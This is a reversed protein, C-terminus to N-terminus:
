KQGPGAKATVNEEEEEEDEPLIIDLSDYIDEWSEMAERYSDIQVSAYEKIMKKLNSQLTAKNSNMNEMFEKTTGSYMNKSDELEKKANIMKNSFLDHKKKTEKLNMTAQEFKIRCMNQKRKLERSKKLDERYFLVMPEVMGGVNDMKEEMRDEEFGMIHEGLERLAMGENTSKFAGEGFGKILEGFLIGSTEKQTSEIISKGVKEIARMDKKLQHLLLKLEDIDNSDTRQSRTQGAAAGLKELYKQTSASVNLTMKKFKSSVGLISDEQSTNSPGQPESQIHTVNSIHNGSINLNAAAVVAEDAVVEPQQGNSNLNNLNNAHHSALELQAQIDRAKRKSYKSIHRQHNAQYIYSTGHYKYVKGNYSEGIHQNISQSLTKTEM